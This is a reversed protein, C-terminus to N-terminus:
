KNVGWLHNKLTYWPGLRSNKPVRNHKPRDINMGYARWYYAFTRIELAYSIQTLVEKNLRQRQQETPEHPLWEYAVDPVGFKPRRAVVRVSFGNGARYFDSTWVGEATRQFAGSENEELFLLTPWSTM